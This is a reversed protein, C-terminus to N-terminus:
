EAEAKAEKFFEGFDKQLKESKTVLISGKKRDGIFSVREPDHLLCWGLLYAILADLRDDNEPMDLDEFLPAAENDKLKEWLEQISIDTNNGKYKPLKEGCWFYIAVAPHVEAVRKHTQQVDEKNCVLDFPTESRDLDGVKPLGLCYKTITWHPCGAYARVSVGGTKKGSDNQPFYEKQLFKDIPRNYLGEPEDEGEFSSLVEGEGLDLLPADWCLLSPRPSEKEEVLLEKLEHPYLDKFSEGDFVTTKKKPAPDIGLIKTPEM